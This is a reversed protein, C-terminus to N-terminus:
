KRFPEVLGNEEFQAVARLILAAVDKGEEITYTGRFLAEAEQLSQGNKLCKWVLASTGNFVHVKDAEHDFVMLEDGIEQEPFDAKMRFNLDRAM